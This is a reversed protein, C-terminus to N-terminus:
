GIDCWFCNCWCSRQSGFCCWSIWLSNRFIGARWCSRWRHFFRCAFLGYGPSVTCLLVIFSREKLVRKMSEFFEDRESESSASPPTPPHNRFFIVGLVSPVTMLIALVLDLRKCCDDEDGVLGFRFAM